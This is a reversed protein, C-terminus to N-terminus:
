KPDWLPLHDLIGITWEKSVPYTAIATLVKHDVGYAEDNTDYFVECVYYCDILKALLDLEKDNRASLVVTTIPEFHTPAALNKIIMMTRVKSVVHGVQAALRGPPHRCGESLYGPAGDFGKFVASFTESVVVYIRKDDM